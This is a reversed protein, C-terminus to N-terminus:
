LKEGAAKRIVDVVAEPKSIDVGHGASCSVIDVDMGVERGAEIMSRPLDSTIVKDDKCVLYTVPIHQYAPYTLKRDFSISSHEDM